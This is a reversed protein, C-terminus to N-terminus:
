PYADWDIRQHDFAIELFSATFVAKVEEETSARALAAKVNMAMDTPIHESVFDYDGPKEGKDLRRLAVSQWRRLDERAARDQVAKTPMSMFPQGQGQGQAQM